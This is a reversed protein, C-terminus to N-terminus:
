GREGSTDQQPQNTSQPMFTSVQQCSSTLAMQQGAQFPQAYPWCESGGNASVCLQNNAATWTGAVSTGQPTTISVTGDAGFYISNMVGNTQVQVTQGAIESGPVWVGQGVAAIPVAGVAGVVALKFLLSRSM